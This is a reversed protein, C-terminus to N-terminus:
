LRLGLRRRHARRRDGHHSGACRPRLRQRASQARRSADNRDARPLPTAACLHVGDGRRQRLRHAADPRRGDYDISTVLGPISKLLGAANYQWPQGATGACVPTPAYCTWLNARGADEGHTTEHVLGAITSVRRKEAGSPHYDIAHSAAANSSSTLRGINFAGPRAEDYINTMLAPDAVVPAAIRRALPRGLQDYSMTTVVGRADSQRIMRDANDYAYTWTGLDPDSAGVRNGAMDWRYSWSASDHDRVAILRNLIDYTALFRTHVFPRGGSDAGYRQVLITDGRTSTYTDTIQGLEDALRTLQLPANASFPTAYLYHFYTRFSADPNVTKVIRDAWDFSNVTYFASENSFYPFTKQAINGRADFVTDVRRTPSGAADGPTEERWVRGLGDFFSRSIKEGAGNALPEAVVIAQRAPDGEFEFRTNRFYGGASEAYRAPRCFADQQFTHVIGNWDTKAAPVGCAANWVTTAVFRADAPNAGLAFFRPAREAVPYLHYVSDYDWETRQGAGDVHSLRNGWSDYAYYHTRYRSPEPGHYNMFEIQSTLEGKRPAAENPGGDYYYYTLALRPDTATAGALVTDYRTLNTIYAQPDVAFARYTTKEDGVFDIRGLDRDVVVNSWADFQREIRTVLSIGSTLRTETATNLAWWPRVAANVAWTEDVRKVENGAGDKWVITEPLGHSALDQRWITEVTPSATEGNARPKSEITKRFGLFKRERPDYKGGEYTWTSTATQGRGDNVVMRALTPLPFPLHTNAWITSPAYEFSMAGGLETSISTLLNPTAGTTKSVKLLRSIDIRADQGVYSITATQGITDALGDGNFDGTRSGNLGIGPAVVPISGNAGSHLAFVKELDTAPYVGNAGPMLEGGWAFEGMGDGDVDAISFRTFNQSASNGADLMYGVAIGQPSYNPIQSIFRDGTNLFLRVRTESRTVYSCTENRCIEGNFNSELIDDLGDGNVDGIACDVSAVEFGLPLQFSKVCVNAIATNDINRISVPSASWVAGDHSRFLLPKDLGDGDIVQQRGDGFFDGKGILRTPNAPSTGSATGPVIVVREAGDGDHDLAIRVDNRDGSGSGPPVISAVAACDAGLGAHDIGQCWRATATLDANFELVSGVVSNSFARQMPLILAGASREPAFRGFELFNRTLAYYYDKKNTGSPLISATKLKKLVLNSASYLSFTSDIYDDLGSTNLGIIEDKGDANVDVIMGQSPWHLDNVPVPITDFANEYTKYAFTTPPKQTGATVVGTASVFADSGFHRIRSLQSANSISAQQYELTFAARMAGDVTVVVSKIRETIRSITHGNAQLIHDPRPERFFQISTGNYTIAAPYCVPQLPCTWGYQASNGHTDTISQLLWRYRYALDHAESGPNLAGASALDGSAALVSRAGSNDTIEWINASPDFRIRQYSERETTHTGGAACSPSAVGTACAVLEEGNLFFVDSAGYAPVGGQPRAREIVDFGSIGWGYGLWGQYRGGLRAKRSSDYQIELNPEIGRFAPVDLPYGYLLSGNGRAEPLAANPPGIEPMAAPATAPLPAAAQNGPPANINDGTSVGPKEPVEASEPADPAIADITSQTEAPAPADTIVTDAQAMAPIQSAAPIPFWSAILLSLASALVSPDWKQRIQRRM